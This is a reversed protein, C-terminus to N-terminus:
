INSPVIAFGFKRALYGSYSRDTHAQTLANKRTNNVTINADMTHIRAFFALSEKLENNTLINFLKAKKEKDFVKQYANSHFKKQSESNEILLRENM